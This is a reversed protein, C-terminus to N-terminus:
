KTSFKYGSGRITRLFFPHAPDSEIKRRLKRIYSDVINSEGPYSDGWVATLLDDRPVVQDVHQMLVMLLKMETPTLTIPRHDPIQVCLDAVNLEIGPFRFHQTHTEAVGRKYIRFLVRRVRAVVEAPAYPKTIYDDAGMELGEVKDELEFRSTMFIVPIDLQRKKLEGYLQFGNINRPGFNIDLLILHPPEREIMKLAGTPNDVEEVTYGENRMLYVAMMRNYADDEVVLIKM